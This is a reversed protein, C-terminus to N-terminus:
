CRGGASTRLKPRVLLPLLVGAWALRLWAPGEAGIQDILGISAAIGLQVLTMSAIALLVGARANNKM